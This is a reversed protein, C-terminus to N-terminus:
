FKFKKFFGGHLRIKKQINVNDGHGILMPFHFVNQSILQKNSQIKSCHPQLVDSVNSLELTQYKLIEVDKTLSWLLYIGKDLTKYIAFKLLGSEGHVLTM